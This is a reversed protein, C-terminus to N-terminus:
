GAPHSFPAPSSVSLHRCAGSGALWLGPHSRMLSGAPILIFGLKANQRCESGSYLDVIGEAKGVGNVVITFLHKGPYHKRTSMDEFSYKRTIPYSGAEFDAEKIQFIKRSTKGNAKVYDVGYELRVRQIGPDRLKIEFSFKLAAGISISQPDFSLNEVIIEGPDSFGFLMLARKNGEKLLTRCARKVIWDTHKHHGYWRECVDLVKDPHDKSIDNLNNAVSKRVYEEPDEKLIELIQFIPAPDKKFMPLAKAWPLRPRCGESALRRLHLNKERALEELYPMTREPDKLLFPRVAFESSCLGTFLALAPLSLEWHDLGKMEVFDPFVLANFGGFRPAIETLIALAERYDVPLTEALCSTVHHMKQKLEQSGWDDAYVLSNFEAMDFGPYVEKIAEGLEKIFENSFFLDKLRETM